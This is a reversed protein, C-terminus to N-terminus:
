GKYEINPLNNKTFPKPKKKKKGDKRPQQGAKKNDAKKHRVKKGQDILRPPRLSIIDGAHLGSKIEIFSQNFLGVKVPMAEKQGNKIVYVVKQQHRNVVAGLPVYLVDKLDAVIIQVRASMGPRMNKGASIIEIETPYIKLDPNMWSSGSDPLPSVRVVVGEVIEDPFADLTIICRQGKHVMMVSTEHVAISVGMRTTDPIRLIVQRKHVSAGEEISDNSRYRSGGGREEGYVVMGVTDAKIICAAYQRQTDALEETKYNHTAQVSNLRALVRSANARARAGTRKFERQSELCDSYFKEAVKPFEYQKFLQLSTETQKVTIENRKLNFEDRDYDTKPVFEKKFLKETWTFKTIAQELESKALLIRNEIERLDQLAQGGIHNGDAQTDGNMLDYIYVSIQQDKSFYTELLTKAAREGLYKHLDMQAFRVTLKAASIDSENQALQIDYNETAESFEAESIAFAIENRTLDEKVDAYDLEVLILGNDIDTRTIIYGEEILTIINTNGDVESRIVRSATAKISGSETVSILLDGQQVGYQAGGADAIDVNNSFYKVAAVGVVGIIILAIWKVPLFRKQKNTM